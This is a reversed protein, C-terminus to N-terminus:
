VLKSIDRILINRRNFHILNSKKLENLVATVTQRSTGTINAIDQQTLAHKILIEYGVKRGISNASEKLFDIVRARADKFIMAELKAETNRLREGIWHLVQLAFDHNSEMLSKVFPADLKYCEVEQSMSMSFEKRQKEGLLSLEGFITGPYVIRKIIERGEDGHCGLKVYGKVLLYINNSPSQPEYIYKYKPISIKSIHEALRSREKADLVNFIALQDLYSVISNQLMKM